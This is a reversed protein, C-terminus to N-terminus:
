KCSLQATKPAFRTDPGSTCPEHPGPRSFKEYVSLDIMFPNSNRSEDEKVAKISHKARNNKVGAAWVSGEM